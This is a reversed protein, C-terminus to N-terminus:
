YKKLYYYYYDIKLSVALGAWWIPTYFERTECVLFGRLGVVQCYWKWILIICILEMNFLRGWVSYQVTVGVLVIDKLYNAILKDIYVSIHSVRWIEDGTPVTILKFNAMSSQIDCNEERDYQQLAQKWM